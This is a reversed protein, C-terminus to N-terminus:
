QDNGLRDLARLGEQRAITPIIDHLRVKAYAKKKKINNYVDKPEPKNTLVRLSM